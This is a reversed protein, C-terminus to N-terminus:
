IMDGSAQLRRKRHMMATFSDRELKRAAEIVKKRAAKAEQVAPSPLPAPSLKDYVSGSICAAPHFDVLLDSQLVAPTPVLQWNFL